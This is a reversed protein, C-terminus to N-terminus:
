GNKVLKYDEHFGRISQSIHGYSSRLGFIVETYFTKIVKKGIREEVNVRNVEFVKV